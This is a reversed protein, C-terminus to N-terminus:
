FNRAVRFGTDDNTGDRTTRSRQAASRVDNKSTSWTAGRVVRFSPLECGETKAAGDPASNEYDYDWCDEGLEAVNGVTDFLGFRDPALSGVPATFPHGDTCAAPQGEGRWDSVQAVLSQDAINAFACSADDAWPIPGPESARLIYEQESERPLRYDHGSVESLWTLYVKADEWSICVAPHRDDQDFGPNRWSTQPTETWGGDAKLGLCGVTPNREAETLYETAATFKRFEGVTVEFRGVAFSEISISRIPSAHAVYSAESGM